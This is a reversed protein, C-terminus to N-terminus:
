IFLCDCQVAMGPPYSVTMTDLAASVCSPLHFRVFSFTFTDGAPPFSFLYYIFPFLYCLSFTYLSPALILANLFNGATNPILGTVSIDRGALQPAAARSRM